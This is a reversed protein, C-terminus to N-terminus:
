QGSRFADFAHLLRVSNGLDVPRGALYRKPRPVGGDRVGTHIDITLSAPGCYSTGFLRPM